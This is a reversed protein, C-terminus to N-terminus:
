LKIFSMEVCCVKQLLQHSNAMDASATLAERSSEKLRIGQVSDFMQPSELMAFVLFLCAFRCFFFTDRKIQSVAQTKIREKAKTLKFIAVESM